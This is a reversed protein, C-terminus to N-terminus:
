RYTVRGLTIVAESREKVSAAFYAEGSNMKWFDAAITEGPFVPKSFRGEISLVRDPDKDGLGRVAARCAHGFTCLGHLIPRDFGAMQAVEPNAHIPNLDMSAIRYLLAQTRVTTMEAHVDPAKGEPPNYPPAEPGREGGFGGEGRYFIQWETDFVPENKHDVTKTEYIALAAKQKDYLAKITSTTKLTAEPPIPRHMMCKQVGHVLTLYNGGLSTIAEHIPALVVVVSFTPLVKPGKTELLLDLEDDQAGCALAYLATQKWDYTYEHPGFRKGIVSLDFAV